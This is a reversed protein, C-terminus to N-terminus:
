PVLRSSSGARADSEQRRHEQNGHEPHHQRQGRGGSQTAEDLDPPQGLSGNRHGGGAAMAPRAARCPTRCPGAAPLRGSGRGTPPCAALPLQGATRAPGPPGPVGPLTDALAGATTVGSGGSLQVLVLARSCLVPSRGCRCWGPETGPRAGRAPPWPHPRARHPVHQEGDAAFLAAHHRVVQPPHQIGVDVSWSM